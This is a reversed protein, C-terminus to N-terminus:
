ARVMEELYQLVERQTEGNRIKNYCVEIENVIRKHELIEFVETSTAAVIDPKIEDKIIGYVAFAFNYNTVRALNNIADCRESKMALKKEAESAIGKAALAFDAASSALMKLSTNM